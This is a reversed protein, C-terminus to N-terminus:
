AGELKLLLLPVSSYVIMAAAAVIGSDNLVLAATAGIVNAYCGHMLYPYRGEWRRLRGQPRLVLVAMVVLGTLLVKSWASIRILHWNMALKRAIMAGIVDYRGQFLDGFARGIHSSHGPGAAPISGGLASVATVSAAAATPGATNGPSGAANLLWLGALAACLPLALALALRRWRLASGAALRAALAGFGAAAALAGGANAGLAPAALGGALACGAAAAWARGSPAPAKPTRLQRAQLWASLGLLSAGLLVGMLENGIGYYRAGIMADYGLVSRKMASAGTCLDLLILGSLGAGIWWLMRILQPLERSGAAAGSFVAGALGLLLLLGLAGPDLRVFWGMTLLVGPILLVSFLLGRLLGKWWRKHATGFWAATLGALMVAVEYGALGYLITPRLKYVKSIDEVEQLLWSLTNAKSGATGEIPEATQIPLGIMGNPRALGFEALLTPAIDAASVVGPRRTAASTLLGTGAAREPSWRLLPTLQLKEKLAEAHAQPSVLWLVHGKGNTEMDDVLRGIFRDLQELVEQKRQVFLEPAYMEKEAYLRHLDGLEILALAGSARDEAAATKRWEQYLREFRTHVGYPMSADTELLSRGVDGEEVRGQEDMVMLAASRQYQDLGKGPRDVNGWVAMRIGHEKLTEGLLGPRAIYAGHANSRRMSEISPVVVAAPDQGESASLSFRELLDVVRQGDRQETRNWGESGRGDAPAGAGWTAYVSELGRYPLRVNMAGWEGAESLRRLSPMSYLREPRLEMFSLGPVSLVTVLPTRSDVTPIVPAGAVAKHIVEIPLDSNIELASVIPAFVCGVIWLVLGVAAWGVRKSTGIGDKEGIWGCRM